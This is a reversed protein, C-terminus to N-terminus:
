FKDLLVFQSICNELTYRWWWYQNALNIINTNKM